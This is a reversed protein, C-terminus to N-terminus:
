FLGIDIGDVQILDFIGDDVAISFSRFGAGTHILLEAREIMLHHSRDTHTM